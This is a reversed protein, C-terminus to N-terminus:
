KTLRVTDLISELTSVIKAKDYQSIGSEPPYNQINSYHIVYEFVECGNNRVARYSTTEYYNGAGADSRAFQHFVIGGITRNSYADHYGFSSPPNLCQEVATAVTSIGLRLSADGFNTKPEFSKPIQISAIESGNTLGYLEWEALPGAQGPKLYFDSPYKLSIGFKSNSYSLWGSYNPAPTPFFNQKLNFLSHEIPVFYVFLVGVAIVTIIIRHRSIWSPMEMEGTYVLCYYKEHVENESEEM